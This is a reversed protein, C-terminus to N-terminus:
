LLHVTVLIHIDLVIKLISSSFIRSTELPCYSSVFAVIWLIINVYCTKKTELREISIFRSVRSVRFVVSLGWNRYQGLVDRSDLKDGLLWFNRWFDSRTIFTQTMRVYVGELTFGLSNFDLSEISEKFDTVM